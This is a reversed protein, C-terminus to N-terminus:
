RQYGDVSVKKVRRFSGKGKKAPIMKPKNVRAVVRAIPNRNKIEQKMINLINSFVFFTM